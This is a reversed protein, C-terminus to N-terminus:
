RKADSTEAYVDFCCTHQSKTSKDKIRKLTFERATEKRINAEKRTVLSQLFYWVQVQEGVCVCMYHLYYLSQLGLLVIVCVLSVFLGSPICLLTVYSCVGCQPTHQCPKHQMHTYPPQPMGCKYVDRSLWHLKRKELKDGRQRRLSERSTIWPEASIGDSPQHGLPKQVCHSM